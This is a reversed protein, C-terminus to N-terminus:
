EGKFVLEAQHAALEVTRRAQAIATNAYARRAGGILTEQEARNHRIWNAENRMRAAAIELREAAQNLTAAANDMPDM